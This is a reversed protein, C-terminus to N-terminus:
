EIVEDAAVLLGDPVTLGLSKATKRNIVLDYKTPGQVPLDGSREGRLIRDIYSPARRYLDVSDTDYSMLGGSSIFIRHTYMAPLRHRRALEIILERNTFGPSGPLVLLGGNREQAFASVAREIEPADSVAAGVTRVGLDPAVAEVTRLYGQHSIDGPLLVVLVREISPAVEKLMGLWKGAISFEYVAFGTLNGGPHAMNDVFGNALPDTVGVFVIPITRTERRFAELGPTGAVVIVSPALSVLEAAAAQLREASFPGWRYDIRINRGDAWRLKELASIFAARRAQQEPDDQSGVGMYGVRPLGQSQARAALPWTTAGGLLTIFQRRRM